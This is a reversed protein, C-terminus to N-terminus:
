GVHSSSVAMKSAGIVGTAADQRGHSSGARIEAKAAGALFRQALAGVGAAPGQRPEPDLGGSLRFRLERLPRTVDSQPRQDQTLATESLWPPWRGTLTRNAARAAM